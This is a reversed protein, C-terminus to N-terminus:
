LYNWSLLRLLLSLFGYVIVLLFCLIHSISVRTSFRRRLPFTLLNLCKQQPQDLYNIIGRCFLYRTFHSPASYEHTGSSSRSRNCTSHNSFFEKQTSARSSVRSRSPFTLISWVNQSPSSWFKTGLLIFVEDFPCSVIVRMIRPFRLFVDVDLQDCVKLHGSLFSVILRLSHRLNKCIKMSEIASKIKWKLRDWKCGFSTAARCLRSSSTAWPEDFLLSGQLAVQRRM